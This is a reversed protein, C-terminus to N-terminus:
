RAVVMMRTTFPGVPQFGSHQFFHVEPFGARRLHDGVEDVTWAREEHVEEFRQTARGEEWFTLHLTSIRTTPDYSHQWISTVNGVQRTQTRTGWCEALGYLTNMDFAFLGSRKVARRVCGFCGALAEETLRYNMSDYLCIAADVQRNLEFRSMDAQIPEIPLEARKRELEKLMERSRDLALLRYGRRALMITPIGTGCALDLILQPRTGFRKFIRELYDVWTKYDVYRLMFRDYHRAFEQFPEARVHKM